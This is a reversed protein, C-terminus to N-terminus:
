ACSSLGLLIVAALLIIGSVPTLIIGIITKWLRIKLLKKKNERIIYILLILGAGLHIYHYTTIYSAFDIVAAPTVYPTQAYFVGLGFMFISLILMGLSIFFYIKQFEPAKTSVNPQSMTECGKNGDYFM